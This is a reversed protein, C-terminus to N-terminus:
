ELSRPPLGRGPPRRSRLAVRADGQCQRRKGYSPSRPVTPRGSCAPPTMISANCCGLRRVLLAPPDHRDDEHSSRAQQQEPLPEGCLKAKRDEDIQRHQIARQWQTPWFTIPPRRARPLGALRGLTPDSRTIRTGPPLDDVGSGVDPSARGCNAPVAPHRSAGAGRRRAVLRSPRRHSRRRNPRGRGCRCNTRSATRTDRCLACFGRGTPTVPVLGGAV